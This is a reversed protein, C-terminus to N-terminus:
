VSTTLSNNMIRKEKALTRDLIKAEIHTRRVYSMYGATSNRELSHQSQRVIRRSEVSYFTRVDEAMKRPFLCSEPTVRYENGQRIVLGVQMLTELSKTLSKHKYDTEDSIQKKILGNPSLERSLYIANLIQLDRVGLAYKTWIDAELSMPHLCEAYDFNRSYELPPNKFCVRWVSATGGLSGRSLCEIWGGKRLRELARIITKVNLNTATRIKRAGPRVGSNGNTYIIHQSIQELLVAKDSTATRGKFMTYTVFSKFHLYDEKTLGTPLQFENNTDM